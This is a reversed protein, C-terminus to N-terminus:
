VIIKNCEVKKEVKVEQIAIRSCKINGKVKVKLQESASKCKTQEGYSISRLRKANPVLLEFINWLEHKVYKFIKYMKGKQHFFYFISSYQSMKGSFKQHSIQAVYHQNLDKNNEIAEGGFMKEYHVVIIQLNVM